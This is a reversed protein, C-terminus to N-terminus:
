ADVSNLLEGHQCADARCFVPLGCAPDDIGDGFGARVGEVAVGVFKDPVTRQVRPIVEGPTSISRQRLESAILEAGRCASWDDFIFCEDKSVVFPKALGFSDRRSNCNGRVVRAGAVQYRAGYRNAGSSRCIQRQAASRPLCGWDHIDASTKAPILTTDPRGGIVLVGKVIILKRVVREPDVSRM